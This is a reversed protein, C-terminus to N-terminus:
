EIKRKELLLVSWRFLFKIVLFVSCLVIVFQALLYAIIDLCYYQIFSLDRARMMLHDMQGQEAVTKVWYSVEARAAAARGRLLRAVTAARGVYTRLIEIGGFLSLLLLLFSARLFTVRYAESALTERIAAILTDRNLSNREIMVARGQRRLNRANLFQDGFLPIAVMPKGAFTAELISNMGAHTIFLSLRKDALLDMQPVWKMRYINQHTGFLESDSEDEYKWIFTTNPFSAFAEIIDKKLWLPMDKSGTFTGLSFLVNTPRQNLLNNLEEDLPKPERIAVGGIYRIINAIPRPTEIFENVNLLVIGVKQRLLRRFDPFGPHVNNFYSFTTREWNLSLYNLELEFKFNDLREWFTMEDSYTTYTGPVYSPNPPVGTIERVYPTVGITSVAVTKKVGILEFVGVQYPEYIEHVAVDFRSDRLRALLNEDEVLGRYMNQLNKVFGEFDSASLSRGNTPMDWLSSGKVDLESYDGDNDMYKSKYLIQLAASTHGVMNVSPDIIPSLITGTAGAGESIM